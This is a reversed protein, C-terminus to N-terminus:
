TCLFLRLAFTQAVEVFTKLGFHNWLKEVFNLVNSFFVLKQSLFKSTKFQIFWLGLPLEAALGAM